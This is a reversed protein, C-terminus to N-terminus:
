PQLRGGVVIDRVHRDVADGKQVIARLTWRGGLPLRLDATYNGPAAERLETLIAQAHRTVQEAIVQVSAGTVPLGNRDFASVLLTNSTGAAGAYSTRVSWGRQQQNAEAALVDNYHLGRQYPEDTVMGPFTTVALFILRAELAVLGLFAVVILTPIWRDNEVLRRIRIAKMM